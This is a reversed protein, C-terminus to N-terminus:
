TRAEAPNRSIRSSFGCFMATKLQKRNEYPQLFRFETTSDVPPSTCGASNDETDLAKSEAFRNRFPFPSTLVDVPRHEARAAHPKFSRDLNRGLRTLNSRSPSTGGSGISTQVPPRPEVRASQPKFPLALNWGLRTLNSSSPSTGGSGRSTQVAPRPEVRASQPKFPLALNWGLRNLNSRSPSTGGSGRSTQVPPRPEVRAAHPKFPLALNRGLRNLSSRSPSTRGSGISAQVPPRPEVRASQPKFPLAINWGLRTLNAAPCTGRGPIAFRRCVSLEPANESPSAFPNSDRTRCHFHQVNTEVSRFAVIQPSLVTEGDWGRGGASTLPRREM